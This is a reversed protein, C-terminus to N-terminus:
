ACNPMLWNWKNMKQLELICYKAFILCLLINFHMFKYILSIGMAALVSKVLIWRLELGSPAILFSLETVSIFTENLKKM